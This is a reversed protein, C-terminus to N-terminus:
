IYARTTRKNPSECAVDRCRLNEGEINEPNTEPHFLYYDASYISEISVRQM